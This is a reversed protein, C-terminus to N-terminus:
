PSIKISGFMMQNNEYFQLVASDNVVNRAKFQTQRWYKNNLLNQRARWHVTEAITVMPTKWAVSQNSLTFVSYRLPHSNTSPLTFYNVGNVEKLNLGIHRHGNIVMPIAQAHNSLLNKVEDDNDICFWQKPGGLLESTSWRIISHHIFILNLENAHNTLQKDLWTLQEEPLIGGWKEPENPLCSDLGILRLGPLIQQAYYRKGTNDFGHGNFFKGFEEVSMYHFGDRQKEPIPKFDHNGCIIYYPMLLQDLLNKAVLANEWEGDQLLDGAVLVFALEPEQNIDKITERLCEVSVASMKVGNKGKIDLHPDSIVAFRIPKFPINTPTAFVKHGSYMAAGLLSIGGVQIFKRRSISNESM